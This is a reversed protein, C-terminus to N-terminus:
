SEEAEDDEEDGDFASLDDDRGWLYQDDNYDYNDDRAMSAVEKDAGKAYNPAAAAATLKTVQRM